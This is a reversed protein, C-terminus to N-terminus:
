AGGTVGLIMEALILLPDSGHTHTASYGGDHSIPLSIEDAAVM